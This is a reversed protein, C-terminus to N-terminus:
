HKKRLFLEGLLFVLIVIVIFPIIFVFPEDIKPANSKMKNNLFGIIIAGWWGIQSITTAFTIRFKLIKPINDNNTVGKLGKKIIHLYLGNLGLLLVLFIKITTLGSITGKMIILPIGSLVLFSWGTWILPQTIRAVKEVFSLKIKKILWLFGCTDIVVVAGFGVVLSILHIFLFIHYTDM